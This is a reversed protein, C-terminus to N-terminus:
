NLISKLKERESWNVLKSSTNKELYLLFHGIKEPIFGSANTDIVSVKEAIHAKVNSEKAMDFLTNAKFISNSFHSQTSGTIYNILTIKSPTKYYIANFKIDKKEPNLYRNFSVKDSLIFSKLYKNAQSVFRKVTEKEKKSEFAIESVSVINQIFTTLDFLKSPINVPNSTKLYYYTVGDRNELQKIDFSSQFHNLIKLFCDDENLPVEYVGTSIWGGDSIVFEDSQKSLFVSIFKNNTTAYPTIIELSNGRQKAQWLGGFANKIDAFIELLNM